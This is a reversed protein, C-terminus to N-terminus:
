GHLAENELSLASSRDLLDQSRDIPERAFPFSSTSRLGLLLGPALGFLLCRSVGVRLGPTLCVIETVVSLRVL